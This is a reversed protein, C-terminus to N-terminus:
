AGNIGRPLIQRECYKLGVGVPVCLEPTAAYDSLAENM